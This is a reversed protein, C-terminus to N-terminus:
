NSVISMTDNIGPAPIPHLAPSNQLSLSASPLGFLSLGDSPQSNGMSSGMMNQGLNLLPPQHYHNEGQHVSHQPAVQLPQQNTLFLYDRVLMLATDGRPRGGMSYSSYSEMLIKLIDQEENSLSPRLLLLRLSMFGQVYPAMPSSPDSPMFEGLMSVIEDARHDRGESSSAQVSDHAQASGLTNSVAAALEFDADAPDDAQVHGNSSSVATESAGTPAISDEAEGVDVVLKWKPSPM